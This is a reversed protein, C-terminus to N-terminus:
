REGGNEDADLVYTLRDALWYLVVKAAETMDAPLTGYDDAVDESWQWAMLDSFVTWVDYTYIPVSGDVYEHRVDDIVEDYRVTEDKRESWGDAVSMLWQGGDCVDNRVNVSIANALGYVTRRNEDNRITENM